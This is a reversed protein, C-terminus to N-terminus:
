WTDIMRKKAEHITEDVPGQSFENLLDELSSRNNIMGIM